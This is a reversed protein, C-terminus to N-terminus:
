DSKFKIIMEEIRLLDSVHKPLVNHIEFQVDALRMKAKLYLVPNQLGSDELM